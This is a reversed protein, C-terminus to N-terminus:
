AYSSFNRRQESTEPVWIEWARPLPENAAKNQFLNKTVKKEICSDTRGRWHSRPNRVTGRKIPGLCMWCWAVWSTGWRNEDISPSEGEIGWHGMWNSNFLALALQLGVAPSGDRCASWLAMFSSAVGVRGEQLKLSPVLISSTVGPFKSDNSLWKQGARHM